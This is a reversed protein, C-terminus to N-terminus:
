LVSFVIEQENRHLAIGQRIKSKIIQMESFFNNPPIPSYSDESFRKVMEDLIEKEHNLKVQIECQFFEVSEELEYVKQNLENIRQTAKMLEDKATHVPTGFLLHFDNKINHVIMEIQDGLEDKFYTDSEALTCLMKIEEDKTITKKM